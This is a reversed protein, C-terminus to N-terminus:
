EAKRAYADFPQNNFDGGVFFLDDRTDRAPALMVNLSEGNGMADGNGERFYVIHPNGRMEILLFPHETGNRIMKGAMYIRKKSLISEYKKPINQAVAPDSKFSLVSKGGPRGWLRQNLAAHPAWTGELRSAVVNEKDPEVRLGGMASAAVLLGLVSINRFM